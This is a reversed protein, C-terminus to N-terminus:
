APPSAAPEPAESGPAVAEVAKPDPADKKEEAKLAGELRAINDQCEKARIQLLNSQVNLTNADAQVTQMRARWVELELESERKTATM